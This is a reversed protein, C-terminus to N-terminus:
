APRWSPLEGRGAGSLEGDGSLGVREAGCLDREHEGAAGRPSPRAVSMNFVRVDPLASQQADLYVCVQGGVGVRVRLVRIGEIRVKREDWGPVRAPAAAVSEGPVHFADDESLQTGYVANIEGSGCGEAVEVGWDPGSLEESRDPGPPDEARVGHAPWSV